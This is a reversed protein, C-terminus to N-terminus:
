KIGYKTEWEKYFPEALEAYPVPGENQELEQAKEKAIERTVVIAPADVTEIEKKGIEEGNFSQLLDGLAQYSVKAISSDSVAKFSPTEIMLPTLTSEAYYSYNKVSAHGGSRLGSIGYPPDTSSLYVIAGIEPNGNMMDVVTKTTATPEIAKDTVAAIEVNSGKFQEELAELREQCARIESVNVIGLKVGNPFDNEIAEVVGESLQSENEVLQADFLGPTAPSVLNITPIENAELEGQLPKIFESPISSFVIGDVGNNILTRTATLAKESESNADQLEVTWGLHEAGQKFANFFRQEVGGQAYIDVYGIKKGSLNASAGGGGSGTETTEAPEASSASSSSSSGGGCAALVLASLLLMLGLAVPLSKLRGLLKHLQVHAKLV